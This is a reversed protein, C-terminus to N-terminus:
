AAGKRMKLALLDAQTMHRADSAFLVGDRWFLKISDPPAYNTKRRELVLDPEENKGNEVRHLWWRSRTV